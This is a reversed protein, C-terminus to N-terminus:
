RKMDESPRGVLLSRAVDATDTDYYEDSLVNWTHTAYRTGNYMIPVGIGLVKGFDKIEKQTLEGDSFTAEGVKTILNNLSQAWTLAPTAFMGNATYEDRMSDVAYSFAQGLVPHTYTSVAMKGTAWMASEANDETEKNSNNTVDGNLYMRIYESSIGNAFMGMAILWAQNTQRILWNKERANLRAQAMMLNRQHIFFNAFPMVAKIYAPGREANSADTINMNGQTDRILRDADAVAMRELEEPSANPHAKRHKRLADNYGGSWVVVDVFKQTITQFVYSSENVLALADMIKGNSSAMRLSRAYSNKNSDFRNAMFQSKNRVEKYAGSGRTVAALGSALIGMGRVPRIALVLTFNALNMLANTMNVAMVMTSTTNAFWNALKASNSLPRSMGNTAVDILWPKIVDDYMGDMSNLLHGILKNDKNLFRDVQTVPEALFAYNLQAKIRSFLAEHSLDYTVGKTNKARNKTFGDMVDACQNLAGAISDPNLPELTRDNISLPVYGGDYTKGGITIKQAKIEKYRIGTLREHVPQTLGRVEKMIDWIEQAKDMMESNILGREEFDKIMGICFDDALRPDDVGFHRAMAARNSKNGMNLMFMFAEARPRGKFKGEKGLVISVKMTTERGDMIVTKERTLTVQRENKGAMKNVAAFAQGLRPFIEQAKAEYATMGKLIPNYVNRTFVGNEEGDLEKCLFPVKKLDTFLGRVTKAIKAGATLHKNSEGLGVTTSLNGEKDLGANKSYRKSRSVTDKLTDSGLGQLKVLAERTAANDSEKIAKAVSKLQKLTRNLTLLTGLPLSRYDGSLNNNMVRDYLDKYLEPTESVAAIQEKLVYEVRNMTAAREAEDLQYWLARGKVMGAREAILEYVVMLDRDYNKYRYEPNSRLTKVVSRIGDDVVHRIRTAERAKVSLEEAYAFLSLARKWTKPGNLARVGQRMAIRALQLLKHSSSDNYSLKAVEHQTFKAFNSIVSGKGLLENKGYIVRLLATRFGHSARIVANCLAIESKQLAANLRTPDISHVSDEALKRIYTDKNPSFDLLEELTQVLAQADDYVNHYDGDARGSNSFREQAEDFSLLEKVKSPDTEELEDTWRLWKKSEFAKLLQEIREKPYNLEELVAKVEDGRLQVTDLADLLAKKSEFGARVDSTVDEFQENLEKVARDTNIQLDTYAKRAQKSNRLITLESEKLKADEAALKDLDAKYKEKTLDLTEKAVKLEESAKKHADALRQVHGKHTLKLRDHKQQDKTVRRAAKLISKKHANWKERGFSRLYIDKPDKIADLKSMQGALKLRESELAAATSLDKNKKATKIDSKVKKIKAWLEEKETKLKAKATKVEETLNTEAEKLKAKSEVLQEKSYEYRDKYLDKQTKENEIAKARKTKATEYAHTLSKIGSTNQLEENRKIWDQRAPSVGLEFPQGKEPKNGFSFTEKDFARVVAGSLRAMLTSFIGSSATAASKADGLDSDFDKAVKIMAAKTEDGFSDFVNSNSVKDAFDEMDHFPLTAEVKNEVAEKAFIGNLWDRVAARGVNGELLDIDYIHKVQEYYDAQLASNYARQRQAATFDVEDEGEALNENLVSKHKDLEADAREVVKKNRRMLDKTVGQEILGLTTRMNNNNLVGNYAADGQLYYIYDGVLTEQVKNRTEPPLEGWSKGELEPFSRRIADLAAITQKNTGKRINDEERMLVEVMAHVTEHILTEFGSDEHLTITFDGTDLRGMEKPGSEGDVNFGREAVNFKIDYKKLVEEPDVGLTDAINVIFRSLSEAYAQVQATNNDLESIKTDRVKNYIRGRIENAISDTVAKEARLNKETSSFINSTVVSKPEMNQVTVDVAQSMLEDWNAGYAGDLYKSKLVERLEPKDKLAVALDGIPIALDAIDRDTDSATHEFKKIFDRIEGALESKNATEHDTALTDLDFLSFHVTSPVQGAEAAQEAALKTGVDSVNKLNGVDDMIKTTQEIKNMGSDARIIKPTNILISPTAFLASVGLNTLANETLGKYFAEGVDKNDLAFKENAQKILEAKKAEDTESEAAALDADKKEQAYKNLTQQIAAQKLGETLQMSAFNGIVGIGTYKLNDAAIEAPTMAGRAAQKELIAPARKRFARMALSNTTRIALKTGALVGKTAPGGFLLTGWDNIATLAISGKAYENNEVEKFADALVIKDNTLSAELLAPTFSQRVDYRGGAATFNFLAKGVYMQEEINQSGYGYPDNDFQKLDLFDDKHVDDATRTSGYFAETLGDFFGWGLGKENQIHQILAEEELLRIKDEKTLNNSKTPDSLMEYREQRYEGIRGGATIDNWGNLRLSGGDRIDKATEYQEIIMDAVKNFEEPPLSRITPNNQLALFAGTPIADKGHMRTYYMNAIRDELLYETVNDALGVGAADVKFQELQKLEASYKDQDGSLYIKALEVALSRALPAAEESRLKSYRYENLFKTRPDVSSGTSFKFLEDTTSDLKISDVYAQSKEALRGTLQTRSLELNTQLRDDISDANDVPMVQDPIEPADFTINHQIDVPASDSSENTIPTTNDLTEM